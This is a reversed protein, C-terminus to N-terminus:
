EVGLLLDPTICTLMDEETETNTGNKKCVTTAPSTVTDTFARESTVADRGVCPATGYVFVYTYRLCATMYEQM